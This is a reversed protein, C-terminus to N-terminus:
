GYKKTEKEMDAREKKNVEHEVLMVLEIDDADAEDYEAPTWGFARACAHM